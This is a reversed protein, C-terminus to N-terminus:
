REGHRPSSLCGPGLALVVALAHGREHSLSLAFDTLHAREALEAAHGTLELSCRGGDHQRVEISRWTPLADHPELAKMAAEKAAFRAALHRANVAGRFTSCAVEHDTFIRRLYRDGFRSLAERVEDVDVLDIGVAVIAGSPSPGPGSGDGGSSL